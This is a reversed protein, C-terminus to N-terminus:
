QAHLRDIKTGIAEIAQLLHGYNAQIAAVKVREEAITIETARIRESNAAVAQGSWALAGGIGVLVSITTMALPKWIPSDSPPM